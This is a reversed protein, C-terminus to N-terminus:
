AWELLEEARGFSILEADLADCIVKTAWGDMLSSAKEPLEPDFMKPFAMQAETEFQEAPLDPVHLKILAEAALPEVLGCNKLHWVAGEYSLGWHSATEVALKRGSLSSFASAWERVMEPPALFAPAFARARQEVAFERTECDESLSVRTAIDAKGGDHLLHCLEHALTARRSLSYAARGTKENVLIVPVAGNEWLSAAELETSQFSVLAVQIHLGNLCVELERLPGPPVGLGQRAAEGLRYGDEWTQRFGEVGVVQRHREFPIEERLLKLLWALVRGAGAAAALLRLDKAPLNRDAAGRFRAVSRTPSNLGGRLLEGPAAALGRCIREFLTSGLQESAEAERLREPSIEAWQAAEEVSAGFSERRQRILKGVHIM